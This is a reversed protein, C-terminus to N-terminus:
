VLLAGTKIKENINEVSDPRSYVYGQIIDCELSKLIEVEQTTEVGEALVKLGLAHGLTIMSDIIDKSKKDKSMQVIFARDIKLVDFPLKQLYAFSSYGTGFDDIALSLGLSKLKRLIETARGINHMLSDETVEIELLVRSLDINLEQLLEKFSDLFDKKYLEKASVNIAVSINIGMEDWKKLQLVGMKIINCTLEYGLGINEAIRIFKEPSVRGLEPDTWRALAEVGIAKGSSIDVKCQYDLYIKGKLIAERLKSELKMAGIAKADDTLTKNFIKVGNRGSSKVQYMAQDAHKMLFQTDQGDKPFEAIGISATIYINYNAIEINEDLLHLIKTSLVKADSFPTEPLILAFEDGGLRALTNNERKATLFRSTIKELLNDGIDHGFTDNIRKFRDLDIFVVTFVRNKRRSNAIEMQLRDLFLRRNPLGTLPDFFALSKLEKLKEKFIGFAIFLKSLEDNYKSKPAVIELNDESLDKLAETMQMLPLIANSRLWIWSVIAFLFFFVLLINTVLLAQIHFDQSAQLRKKSRQLSYEMIDDLIVSAERFIDVGEGTALLEAKNQADLVEINSLKLIESNILTTFKQYTKEFIKMNQMERDNLEVAKYENMYKELVQTQQVIDSELRKKTSQQDSIIHKFVDAKISYLSSKIDDLLELSAVEKTYMDELRIQEEKLYYNNFLATVLTTLFLVALVLMIRYTIKM